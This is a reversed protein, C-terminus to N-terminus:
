PVALGRWTGTIVNMGNEKFTSVTPLGAFRVDSAVALARLSGDKIQAFAEGPSMMSLDVHGGLLAPLAEAAGNYPIQNFSVGQNIELALLYFNPKATSAFKLKGPNKKAYAVLDKVTKFPSDKKVLLVAPDENVLAIAKFDNPTIQALNMQYLWSVERTVVTINYGDGKKKSGDTMGVAGAGGVQNIVVIDQGLERKLQDAVKRAVADTGGGAAFPVIFNIKKTPYKASFSVGAAVAVVAAALCVIALKKFM